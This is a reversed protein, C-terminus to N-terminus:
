MEYIQEAITKVTLVKPTEKKIMKPSEHQEIRDCCENPRIYLM